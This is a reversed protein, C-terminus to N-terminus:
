VLAGDLFSEMNYFVAIYDITDASLNGGDEDTLWSRLSYKDYKDLPQKWPLIKFDKLPEKLAEQILKGATKQRDQDPINFADHFFNLENARANPNIKKGHIHNRFPNNNFIALTLNHYKAGSLTFKHQRPIRM